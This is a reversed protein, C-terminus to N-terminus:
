ISACILRLMTELQNFSAVIKLLFFSNPSKSSVGQEQTETDIKFEAESVLEKTGIIYKPFHLFMSGRDETSARQSELEEQKV